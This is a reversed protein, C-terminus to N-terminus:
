INRKKFLVYDVLGDWDNYTFGIQFTIKEQTVQSGHPVNVSLLLPSTHEFSKIKKNNRYFDTSSGDETLPFFIAANRGADTHVELTYDKDFKVFQYNFEIDKLLPIRDKINDALTNIYVETYIHHHQLIKYHFTNENVPNNNRIALYDHYWIYNNSNSEQTVLLEQKDYDIFPLYCGLRNSPKLDPRKKILNQMILSM